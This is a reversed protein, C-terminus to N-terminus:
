LLDVPLVFFDNHVITFHVGVWPLNDLIYRALTPCSADLIYKIHISM